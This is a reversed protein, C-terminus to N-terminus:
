FFLIDDDSFFANLKKIMKSPFILCLKLAPLFNGIATDCITHFLFVFFCTYIDKVCMEQTKYYEPIFQIASPSTNVSENFM